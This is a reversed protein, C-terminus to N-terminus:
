GTRRPTPLLAARQAEESVVVHSYRDVSKADKWAGTAILAKSDAGAYRRMWTAYTHRLVHFASREPLTVGAKFVAAKLLSYLYGSKAFRFVKSQSRVDGAMNALAAVAVPPLFVARPEDTKTQPIYAFGDQLRVDNWTLGLAESLRLGTYTLVILLAQFEQDIKGAEEFITEAQEPWLWSTAKNGGAGVPRALDLRVGARRLVASVPSYVQRNRTAGSARPYLAAAAVDIAPQDIKSLKTDGFHELLKRLFRREGGAKMYAAAASAFTPEGPEALEGREVEREWKKLIKGALARNGTKTSRDLRVGLYTGKVAYYPTKGKRPPVLRFPM